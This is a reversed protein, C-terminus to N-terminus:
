NVEFQRCLPPKKNPVLFFIIAKERRLGEKTSLILQSIQHFLDINRAVNLPAASQAGEKM